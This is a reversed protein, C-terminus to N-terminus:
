QGARDRAAPHDARLQDEGLRLMEEFGHYGRAFGQDISIQPNNVVGITRYGREALLEPLYPTGEGLKVELGVIGHRAPSQGSLASAVSVCTTAANSFANEFVTATRAFEALVPTRETPAGYPQTADARLTDFLVILINPADDPLHRPQERWKHVSEQMTPGVTGGMPPDPFPLVDQAAIPGVSLVLLFTVSIRLTRIWKMDNDGKWVDVSNLNLSM